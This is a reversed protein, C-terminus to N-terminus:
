SAPAARDYAASVEQYARLTSQLRGRTFQGPDEHYIMWGEPATFAEEPVRDAGEPIFKLVEALAATAMALLERADEFEEDGRLETPDAPMASALQRAVHLFQGPDIIQSPRDGGIGPPAVPMEPDLTFEFTREVGCGPCRGEYRAVLHEGRQEVTHDPEFDLEGCRCPHLDM